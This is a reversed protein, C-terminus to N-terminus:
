HLMNIKFLEDVVQRYVFPNLYYINEKKKLLGDDMLQDLKLRASEKNCRIIDTLNEVTIGNEILIARMILLKNKNISKLFSYEPLLEQDFYIIDEDIQGASILWFLFAQTINGKVSEHLKEFYEQKLIEQLEGEDIKKIRFFSKKRQHNVFGMRYGSVNHRREILQQLDAPRLENLKITYGFFDSLVLTKELYDWSISHCAFVWFINQYTASILQLLKHMYEFGDLRLSFLQELGDVAIIKKEVVQSNALANNAPLAEEELRLYFDKISQHKSYLDLYVTKKKGTEQSLFKHILSTKGTGKEGVFAVPAYKGEQWKEYAKTLKEWPKTREYYFEFTSLAEMKFLQQYVYPLRAITSETAVLYDSIDSTIFYKGKEVKLQESIKQSSIKLFNFIHGAKTLVVPIFHRIKKLIRDRIAKSKEIAKHRTIYFKVQLANDNEKIENIDEILKEIPSKLGQLEKDIFSQHFELLASLKIETRKLGKQGIEIAVSKDKEQEFNHIASEISFDVIEPIENVRNQIGQFYNIFAIKLRPFTDMFDPVMKYNILESPSIKEFSSRSLPVDYRANKMLYNIKSIGEFQLKSDKQFRDILEALNLREVIEYLQPLYGSILKKRLDIRMKDLSEIFDTATLDYQITITNSSEEILQKLEGLKSSFPTRLQSDIIKSFDLYEKEFSYSLSDIELNLTWDEALLYISNHWNDFKQHYSRLIDFSDKALNRFVPFSPIDTVAKSGQWSSYDGKELFGDIGDFFARSFAEKAQEIKDGLIKEAGPDYKGGAEDQKIKLQSDALELSNPMLEPANDIDYYYLLRISNAKLIDNFLSEADTLNKLLLYHYFFGTESEAKSKNIIEQIQPDAKKRFSFSDRIKFAGKRTFRGFRSYQKAKQVLAIMSQRSEERELYKEVVVESQVMCDSVAAYFDMAPKDSIADLILKRVLRKYNSYEFLYASQKGESVLPKCRSEFDAKAKNIKKILSTSVDLERDLDALITVKFASKLDDAFHVLESQFAM